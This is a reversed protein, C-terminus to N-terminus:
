GPFERPKGGTYFIYTHQSNLIVVVKHWSDFHNCTSLFNYRLGPYTRPLVIGPSLRIFWRFAFQTFQTFFDSIAPVESRILCLDLTGVTVIAAVLTLPWLETRCFSPTQGRFVVLWTFFFRALSLLMLALLTVHGPEWKRSFLLM